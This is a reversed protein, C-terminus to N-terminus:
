FVTGLATSLLEGKLHPKSNNEENKPAMHTIVNLNANWSLMYSNNNSEEKSSFAFM